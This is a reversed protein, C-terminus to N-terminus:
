GSYSQSSSEVVIKGEGSGLRGTVNGRERELEEMELYTRLRGNDAQAKLLVGADAPIKLSIDGNGTRLFLTGGSTLKGLECDIDGNSTKLVGDGGDSRVDISGNGSILSFTGSVGSVTISGTASSIEVSSAEPVRIDYGISVNTSGEGFVTDKRIRPLAAAISVWDEDEMFDLAIGDLISEAKNKSAAKIKVTAIVSIEGRDWGSVTVSGHINRVSLRVGERAPLSFEITDALRYAFADAGAALVLLSIITICLKKRM